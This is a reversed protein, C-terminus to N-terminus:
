SAGFVLRRGCELNALSTQRITALDACALVAQAARLKFTDIHANM